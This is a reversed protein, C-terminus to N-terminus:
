HRSFESEGSHLPSATCIHAVAADFQATGHGTAAKKTRGFVLRRKLTGGSRLEATSESEHQIRTQDVVNVIVPRQICETEYIHNDARTM